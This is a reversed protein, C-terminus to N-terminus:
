CSMNKQLKKEIDPLPHVLPADLVLKRKWYYEDMM